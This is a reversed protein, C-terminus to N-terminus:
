ISSRTPIAIALDEEKGEIERMGEWSFMSVGLMEWIDLITFGAAMMSEDTYEQKLDAEKREGGRMRELGRFTGFFRTNEACEFFFTRSGPVTKFVLDEEKRKGELIEEM